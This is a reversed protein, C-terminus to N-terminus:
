GTPRRADVLRWEEVPWCAEWAWARLVSDTFAPMAPSETPEEQAAPAVPREWCVRGAELLAAAALLSLLIRATSDSM